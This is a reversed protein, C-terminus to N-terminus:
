DGVTVERRSDVSRPQTRQEIRELLELSRTLRSDGIDGQLALTRTLRTEDEPLARDILARVAGPTHGTM